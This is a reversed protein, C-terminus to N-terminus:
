RDHMGKGEFIRAKHKEIRAIRTKSQKAGTFFLNYGRQRGPTLAEFAVKFDPNSDFADLLEQPFVLEHRAKFDVKLGAQEVKIASEIIARLIAEKEDIEEVSTFHIRRAAQTNKGPPILVGHPDDLLAGKFFGLGCSDKMGYIIAVNAGQFTYCPERWKIEESLPYDSLVKRLRQKEQSWSSTDRFYQDLTPSM